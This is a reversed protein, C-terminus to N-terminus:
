DDQASTYLKLFAESDKETLCHGSYLVPLDYGRSVPRTLHATSLRSLFGRQDRRYITAIPKHITQKKFASANYRGDRVSVFETQYDVAKGAVGDGQHTYIPVAMYHYKHKSVIILYRLKTCIYEYNTLSINSNVRSVNVAGAVNSGPTIGRLGAGEGGRFDADHVPARVIQGIFYADKHYVNSNAQWARQEESPDEFPLDNRGIASAAASAFTGSTPGFPIARNPLISQETPAGTRRTGGTPAPARSRRNLM